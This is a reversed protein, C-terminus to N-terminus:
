APPPSVEDIIRKQEPSLRGDAAAANSRAQEPNKMGPIPCTVAPHALTFQLALEVMSQKRKLAPRLKAVTRVDSLFREHESGDNWGQRVSDEFRTNEDFKDALIGKTLPGRLLVGINNELCYPLLDKEPERRLISYEMQCSACRGNANLAKLAAVDNTSIAYHRIKGQEALREFAEVFVEPHEPKGIHCQYLDITDIGLRYLSADCCEMVSWITKFGLPDGARRGWNGVKTAIYVNDPRKKLTKGVYIESQGMGYADATDFLNVGEDLAAKITAIAQKRSVEGWQGGIGWCGMSVTSVKWGTKGLKRYKM